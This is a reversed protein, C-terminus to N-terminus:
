RFLVLKRSIKLGDNTEPQLNKIIHTGLFLLQSWNNCKLVILFTNIVANSVISKTSSFTHYNTFHTYLSQNIRSEHEHLCTIINLDTKGIYKENFGSFTVFLIM